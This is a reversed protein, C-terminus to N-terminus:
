TDDSGLIDGDVTFIDADLKIGGLNGYIVGDNTGDETGESTGIPPGLKTGNKSGLPNSYIIGLDPGWLHILFLYVMMLGM